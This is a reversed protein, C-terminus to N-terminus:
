PNQVFLPIKYLTICATVKFNDPLTCLKNYNIHAYEM